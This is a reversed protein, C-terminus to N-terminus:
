KKGRRKNKKPQDNSDESSDMDIDNPDSGLPRGPYFTEEGEEKDDRSKKKDSPENLIDRIAAKLQVNNVSAQSRDASSQKYKGGGPKLKCEEFSHNLSNKRLKPNSFCHVCGLPNQDKSEGAL